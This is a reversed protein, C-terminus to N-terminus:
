AACALDEVPAVAHQRQWVVLNLLTWLLKDHAQRGSVHEDIIRDLRAADYYARTLSRSGRLHEVLYDRMEGALWEGVPVRFGIKRRTLIDAPLLSRAAERLVRKTTGGKVRWEDPLTSVFEALRHELFPV